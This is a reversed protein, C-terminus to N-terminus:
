FVNLEKLYELRSMNLTFGWPSGWYMYKKYKYVAHMHYLLVGQPAAWSEVRM